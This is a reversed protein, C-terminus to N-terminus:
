GNRKGITLNQGIANLIMQPLEVELEGNVYIKTVAGDNTFLLHHWKGLELSTKACVTQNTTTEYVVPVGDLGSCGGPPNYTGLVGFACGKDEVNIDGSFKSVFYNVLKNSISDPNVWASVSIPLDFDLKPVSNVDVFDDVGDFSMASGF